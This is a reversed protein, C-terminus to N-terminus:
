WICESHTHNTGLNEGSTFAALHDGKGKGIAAHGGHPGTPRLGFDLVIGLQTGRRSVPLSHIAAASTKTGLSGLQNQEYASYFM